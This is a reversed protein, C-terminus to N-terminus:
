MKKKMNINMWNLHKTKNQTKKMNMNMKNLHKIKTRHLITKISFM